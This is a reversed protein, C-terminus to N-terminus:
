KRLETSSMDFRGYVPHFLHKFRKPTGINEVTRFVNQKDNRGSVYFTTGLREFEELVRDRGEIGGYYDPNMIGLGVDGGILFSFGPFRRAKEIFLGDGHTALFPSHYRFQEAHELIEPITLHKKDPHLDTMTFIVKKETMREVMDAAYEHGPHLPNWSGPFLIHKAPDLERASGFRGDPWLLSQDFFLHEQVQQATAIFSLTPLCNTSHGPTKPPTGLRRCLDETGVVDRYANWTEALMAGLAIRDCALGQQRRTMTKNFVVHYSTFGSASCVAVFVQDDSHRKRNTRIASTLGVGILSNLDIKKKKKAIAIKRANRYARAAMWLAVEATCYKTPTYGIYEPLATEDEYPFDFSLVTGSAGPEVCLTNVIGSGGGTCAIVANWPSAHLAQVAAHIEDARVFSENRSRSKKKGKTVLLRRNDPFSNLM